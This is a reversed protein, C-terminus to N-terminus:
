RPTDSRLAYIDFTARCAGGNVIDVVGFGACQRETLWKYKPYSTEFRPTIFVRARTPESPIDDFHGIGLAGVALSGRYRSDIVADDETVIVLSGEISGFRENRGLSVADRSVQVHGSVADNGEVTIDDQVHYVSWPAFPIEATEAVPQARGPRTQRLRSLRAQEAKQREVETPYKLFTELRAGGPVPMFVFEDGGAALPLDYSFLYVLRKDLLYRRQGAAIIPM